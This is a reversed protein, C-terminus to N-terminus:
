LPTINTLQTANVVEFVSSTSTAMSILEISHNISNHPKKIAIYSVNNWTVRYFSLVDGYSKTVINEATKHISFLSIWSMDYLVKPFSILGSHLGSAINSDNVLLVYQEINNGPLKARKILSKISQVNSVGVSSIFDIESMKKKKM